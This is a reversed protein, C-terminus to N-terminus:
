RGAPMLKEVNRWITAPAPVYNFRFFAKLAGRDLRPSWGPHPVFAGPQSAFLWSAGMQALYLPKIGLRDRALSLTRQARDWLALAFMGNLRRLTPLFGWHAFAELVVETDSGGRFAIGRGELEERLAAFNYAEGNFVLVYRGDASVMPQHGAATLDLIALRRFGFAIGAEADTWTGGDDPGRARLAEAMRGVLDAMAHNTLQPETDLFGAFGCM